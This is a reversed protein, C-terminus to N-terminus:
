DEKVFGNNEAWATLADEDFVDEPQCHEAVAVLIDDLIDKLCIIGELSEVLATQKEPTM